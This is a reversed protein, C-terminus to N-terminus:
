QIELDEENLLTYTFSNGYREASTNVISMFENFDVSSRFVQCGASWKDVNESIDRVKSARHINIGYYGEMITSSDMDHVEDRNSDRYVRVKGLRQCLAEYKSKGHGDIKYVGRYQDPVLIATGNVNTPNELWYLGPDTTIRYNDAVWDGNSRKYIVVLNDNFKNSVRESSRVGIINLNYAGKEFFVYGLRQMVNKYVEKFLRAQNGYIRAM